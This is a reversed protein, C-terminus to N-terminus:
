EVDDSIIAKEIDGSTINSKDCLSQFLSENRKFLNLPTDFEAKKGAYLVLIRDYLIITCLRYAICILTRDKFQTQITRQIKNDTELDVSATAEDLIVM